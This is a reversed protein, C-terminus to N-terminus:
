GILLICTASILINLHICQCIPAYPSPILIDSVIPTGKNHGLHLFLFHSLKPMHLLTTHLNYHRPTLPQLYYPHLFASIPQHLIPFLHNCLIYHMKLHPDFTFPHPPQLSPDFTLQYDLMKKANALEHLRQSPPLRLVM